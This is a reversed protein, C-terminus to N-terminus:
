SYEYLLVGMTISNFTHLKTNKKTMFDTPEYFRTFIQWSALKPLEVNLKQKMHEKPQRTFGLYKYVQRKYVDLHTYSVACVCLVCLVDKSYYYFSRSFNILEDVIHLM